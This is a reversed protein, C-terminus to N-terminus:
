TVQFSVPNWKSIFVTKRHIPSGILVNLGLCSPWRKGSSMKLHSKKFSIIHIEILVMQDKDHSNQFQYFPKLNFCVWADSRMYAPAWLILPCFKILNPATLCFEFGAFCWFYADTGKSLLKKGAFIFRQPQPQPELWNQLHDFYMLMGFKLGNRIHM